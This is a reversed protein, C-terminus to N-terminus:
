WVRSTTGVQAATPRSRPDKDWCGEILDKLGQPVSKPVKPRDGNIAVALIIQFLGGLGGGGGGGGGYGGGLDAAGGVSSEEGAPGGGGGAPPHAIDAFPVRRTVMEYM